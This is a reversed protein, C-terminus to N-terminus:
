ARLNVDPKLVLAELPSTCALSRCACGHKLQWSSGQCSPCFMTARSVCSMPFRLGSRMAQAEPCLLEVRPRISLCHIPVSTDSAVNKPSCPPRDYGSAKALM